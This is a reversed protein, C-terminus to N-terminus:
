TNGGLTESSSVSKKVFCSRRHTLGVARVLQVGFDINEGFVCSHARGGDSRQMGTDQALARYWLLRVVSGVPIKESRSLTVNM